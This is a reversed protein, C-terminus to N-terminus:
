ESAWYHLLGAPLSPISLAWVSVLCHGSHGPVVSSCQVLFLSLRVRFLMQPLASAGLVQPILIIGAELSTWVRFRRIYPCVVRYLRHLHRLILLAILLSPLTKPYRPPSLVCSLSGQSCCSTPALSLPSAWACPRQRQRQRHLSCSTELLEFASPFPSEGLDGM